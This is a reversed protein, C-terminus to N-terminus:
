GFFYTDIGGGGQHISKPCCAQPMKVKKKKKQRQEKSKEAVNYLSNM